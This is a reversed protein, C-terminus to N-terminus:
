SGGDALKKELGPLWGGQFEPEVTKAIEIARAYASRAEDTRGLGSKEGAM